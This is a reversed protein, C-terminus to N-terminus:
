PLFQSITAFYYSATKDSVRKVIVIRGLGVDSLISILSTRFGIIGQMFYCITKESKSSKNTSNHLNFILNQFPTFIVEFHSLFSKFQSLVGLFSIKFTALFAKIKLEPHYGLYLADQFAYIHFLSSFVNASLIVHKTAARIVVM